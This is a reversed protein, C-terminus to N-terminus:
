GLRPVTIERIWHGAGDGDDPSAPRGCACFWAQGRRPRYPWFLLEVSTPPAANGRTNVVVSVETGFGIREPKVDLEKRAGGAWVGIAKILYPRAVTFTYLDRWEAPDLAEKNLQWTAMSLDPARRDHERDLEVRTAKEAAEAATRAHDSAQRSTVAADEAAAASRRNFALAWISLALAVIAAAATVWDTVSPDERATETATLLLVTTM